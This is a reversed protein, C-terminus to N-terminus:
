MIEEPAVKAGGATRTFRIYEGTRRDLLGRFDGAIGVPFHLPTPTLGIRETIEDILELPTQGPRDWK